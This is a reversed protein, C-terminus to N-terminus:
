LVNRDIAGIERWYDAGSFDRAAEDCAIDYCRRERASLDDRQVPALLAPAVWPTVLCPQVHYYDEAGGANLASAKAKAEEWTDCPAQNKLETGSLTNVRAIYEERNCGCQVARRIARPNAYVVCFKQTEVKIKETVDIFTWM